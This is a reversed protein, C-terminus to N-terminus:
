HWNGEDGPTSNQVGMNDANESSQQRRRLERQYDRCERKFHGFRNCFFCAGNNANGSGSASGSGRGTGTSGNPGGAANPNNGPRVDGEQRRQGRGRGRGRGRGVDPHPVNGDGNGFNDGDEETMVDGAAMRIQHRGLRQRRARQFSEYQTAYQLAQDINHPERQHVAWEMDIDCLADIFADRALKDRTSKPDGVYAKRTLTKIDQALVCM